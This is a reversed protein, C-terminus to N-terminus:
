RAGAPGPPGRGAPRGAPRAAPPRSILGARRGGPDGASCPGPGGAARAMFSPCGYLAIDAATRPYEACALQRFFRSGYIRCSSRGGDDMKLFICSHYLCCAGCHTCGGEIADRSPWGRVKAALTRSMLRARKQGQVHRVARRLSGRYDRLYAADRALVAAAFPALPLLLLMAAAIAHDWFSPRM